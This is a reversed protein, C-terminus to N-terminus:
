ARSTTTAIRLLSQAAATLPRDETWVAHLRRGLELGDVPVEVFHGLELEDRVTVASLVAPGIGAEVAARIAANVDLVLLPTAPEIGARVFLRDLTERTGSGPERAILPTAALEALTVPTRRQAWPHAAAVVVALRDAGVQRHALGAPVAPAETFGLSAQGSGTLEAVQESNTVKLSVRVEPSQQRLQHIWRPLFHEALTMSSALQLDNDREARLATAGALLTDVDALVRSSWQCIAKGEPTLASGRTDRSALRLGLRRELASLRKSAAPQSIGLREAAKGLSGLEGLLTLLQLSELDPPTM